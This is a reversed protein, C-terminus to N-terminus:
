RNIKLSTSKSDVYQEALKFDELSDIELWSGSIPVHTVCNNADVIGQILDTMYLQSLNRENCIYNEHRQFAEKEKEYIKRLSRLGNGKFATLGIYQAQIENISKPKQGIEIIRGSSDIRLTEADNLPNGFRKEWYPKWKTDVVVSVEGKSNLVKELIQREYLIDGYSVVTIESIYDRACFLTEVMNTEAYRPNEVYTVGSINITNSLYGKVIIIDDIGAQRASEVQWQLIPKGHIEIMCKPLNNTLPRLRKGQGAALIILRPKM